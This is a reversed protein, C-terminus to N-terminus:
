LKSTVEDELKQPLEGTWSDVVRGATGVLLLTPTVLVHISNLPASEILDTHVNLKDLYVHSQSVPQPLVAITRIGHVKAQKVLKVYFPASATCFHCNTDLALVLTKQSDRWEVGPITLREGKLPKIPGSSPKQLSRYLATFVLVFSIILVVSNVSIEAVRQVRASRLPVTLM